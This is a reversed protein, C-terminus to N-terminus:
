TVATAVCFSEPHRLGVDVSWLARVGVRATSFYTYPDAQIELIGWEALLVQSWDGFVLHSTPVQGTSFAPFGALAGNAINGEWLTADTGTFRQRNALLKATAVPALYGCADINVLANAALTDSQFELAKDYTLSTGDVSAVGTTGIIGHPEAGGAGAIAAKDWAVALDAALEGMVVASAGPSSQILLQRSLVTLAAINHATLALQQFVQNTPPITSTETSLWAATGATTGRPFISNETLGDVIIAGLRRVLLRNRLFEIFSVNGSGVLYGGSVAKSTTLDRRQLVEYPVFFGSQRPNRGIRKAVEASAEAELGSRTGAGIQTIARFWSYQQIERPSLGVATLPPSATALDRTMEGALEAIRSLRQTNLLDRM